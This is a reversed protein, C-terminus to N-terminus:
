LEFGRDIWKFLSRLIFYIGGIVVLDIILSLFIWVLLVEFDSYNAINLRTFLAEVQTKTISQLLIDFLRTLDM